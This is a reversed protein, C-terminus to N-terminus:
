LNLKEQTNNVDKIYGSTNIMKFGSLNVVLQQMFFTQFKSKIKVQREQSASFM